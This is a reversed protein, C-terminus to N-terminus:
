IFPVALKLLGDLVGILKEIHEVTDAIKEISGEVEKLRKNVITLADTADKFQQTAADFKVSLLNVLSGRLRKGLALYETKIKDPIGVTMSIDFCQNIIQTLTVTDISAIENSM